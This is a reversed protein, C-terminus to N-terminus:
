QSASSMFFFFFAHSTTQQQQRYFTRKNILFHGYKRRKGVSKVTTAEGCAEEDTQAIHNILSKKKKKKKKRRTRTDTEKVAEIKPKNECEQKRDTNAAACM